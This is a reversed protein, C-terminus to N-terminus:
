PFARSAARCARCPWPAHLAGPLGLRHGAGDGTVWFRRRNAAGGAALGRAAAPRGRDGRGAGCLRPRGTAGRRTLLDSQPAGRQWCCRWASALVASLRGAARQELGLGPLPGVAPRGTPWGAPAAHFAGAARLGACSRCRCVGRWAWSGRWRATAGEARDPAPARAAAAFACASKRATSWGCCCRWSFCCCPQSSRPPSATTWRLWAKYIGATFTQIGFYSAVGFDALTEM